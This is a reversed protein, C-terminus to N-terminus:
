QWRADPDGVREPMLDVRTLGSGDPAPPAAVRYLTAGITLLSETTLAAATADQLHVTPNPQQALRAPLGIESWPAAIATGTPDFVGTVVSGDPLTVPEGFASLNADAIASLADSWPM